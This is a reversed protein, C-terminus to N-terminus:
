TPNGGKGEEFFQKKRRNLFWSLALLLLGGIIFFLSKDMFAWTLKGYAVMTSCIFLVTGFNIKFRWEEIYGRWLVYFSFFFLALLYLMAAGSPLYAFPAVLIWEFSSSARKNKIKGLVSVVFLLLLSGIFYYNDPLLEKLDNANLEDYLLVVFVNFVFAAILPVSQLAYGGSREKLYDGVTYLAMIPVFFWFFKWDMLVVLMLSQLIYSLSFCWVLLASKQKWSYYGLGIVMIAFAIFSFHDMSVSSYWQTITFILLSILYLFRSRYLYTLLIGVTGWVIFSTSDYAMLHFMQGTLIIGSGFTILGLAILATGLKDHGKRLLTEGGAYFAIMLVAIMFLRALQPIDQWNAAVFSLIGLGVLISGLVPLVGIAHKKDDYLSVIQNYQERTVIQNDVWRLGEKEVWKRSM